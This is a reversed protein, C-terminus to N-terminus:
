TCNFFMLVFIPSFDALFLCFSTGRRGPEGVLASWKLVGRGILTSKLSSRPRAVLTRVPGCRSHLYEQQNPHYVICFPKYKDFNLSEILTCLSALSGGVGISDEIYLINYHGM